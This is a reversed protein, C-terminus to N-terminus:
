GIMKHLAIFDLINFVGDGTVDLADDKTLAGLIMKKADVLDDVAVEGDGNIDAKAFLVGDVWKYGDPIVIDADGNVVVDNAGSEVKVFVGGTLTNGEGLTISGTTSDEATANTNNTLALAYGGTCSGNATNVLVYEGTATLTSGEVTVDTRKVEVASAGSVTSDTITLTNREEGWEVRGSLFIGADYNDIVTSNNVSVDAGYNTGNHYIGFYNSTMNVNDVVITNAATGNGSSRIGIYKSVLTGNQVTLTAGDTLLFLAVKETGTITNGDLDFTLEKAAVEITATTEVNALLTITDGDQAAALADEFSAYGVDGIKAVDPASSEEGYLMIDAIDTVYAYKHVYGANSDKRNMAIHDFM